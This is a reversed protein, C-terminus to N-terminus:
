QLMRVPNGGIRCMPVSLIRDERETDINIPAEDTASTTEEAL